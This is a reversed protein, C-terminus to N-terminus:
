RQKYIKEIISLVRNYILRVHYKVRSLILLSFLFRMVNNLMEFINVSDLVGENDYLDILNALIPM